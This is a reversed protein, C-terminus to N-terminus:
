EDFMKRFQDLFDIFVGKQWYEPFTKFYRYPEYTSIVRHNNDSLVEFRYSIGDTVTMFKERRFTEGNVMTDPLAGTTLNLSDSSLHLFQSIHLRTLLVDAAETRKRSLRSTSLLHLDHSSRDRYLRAERWQNNEDLMLTKITTRDQNWYSSIELSIMFIRDEAHIQHMRYTVSDAQTANSQFEPIRTDLDVLSTLCIGVFLIALTKIM